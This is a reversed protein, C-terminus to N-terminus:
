SIYLHNKLKTKHFLFIEEREIACYFFPPFPRFPYHKNHEDKTATTEKNM